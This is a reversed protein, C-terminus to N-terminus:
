YWSLRRIMKMYLEVKKEWHKIQFEFTLYEDIEIGLYKESKVVEIGKIKSPLPKSSSYKSNEPSHTEYDTPRLNLDKRGWKHRTVISRPFFSLCPGHWVFSM